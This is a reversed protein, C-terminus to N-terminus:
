KRWILEQMFKYMGITDYDQWDGKVNEEYMETLKDWNDILNNWAYSLEKLKHLESKWEPILELLKYCRRFDDPDYPHNIEFGKYGSLCNWITISSLGKEGYSHWWEARIDIPWRLDSNTEMLKEGNNTLRTDQTAIIDITKSVPKNQFIPPIPKM